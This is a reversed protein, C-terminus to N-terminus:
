PVGIANKALLITENLGLKDNEIPLDIADNSVSMKIAYLESLIKVLKQEADRDFGDTQKDYLVQQKGLVGAGVPETVAADGPTNGASVTDYVVTGDSLVDKTQAEETLTKQGLLAIEAEATQGQTEYGLAVQMASQMAGLYVTAYDSGVIRQSGYEGSIKTDVSAMLADFNAVVNAINFAM